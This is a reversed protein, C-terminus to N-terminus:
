LFLPTPLLSYPTTIYPPCHKRLPYYYYHHLTPLATELSLLLQFDSLASGVRRNIM